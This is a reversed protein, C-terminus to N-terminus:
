KRILLVIIIILLVTTLGIIIDGGAQFSAGQGKALDELERDSLAAVRQRAEEPSLGLRTIESQVEPRDIENLLRQALPSQRQSLESLTMLTATAPTPCLSGLSVTLLGIVFLRLM